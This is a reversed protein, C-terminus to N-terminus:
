RSSSFSPSVCQPRRPEPFPRWGVGLPAGLFRAGHAAFVGPDGTCLVRLTPADTLEILIAKTTTSGWDTALISRITETM